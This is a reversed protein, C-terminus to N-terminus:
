PRAEREQNCYAARLRLWTAHDEEADALLDDVRSSSANRVLASAYLRNSRAAVAQADLVQELSLHCPLSPISKSSM